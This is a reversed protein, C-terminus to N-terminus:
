DAAANGKVIGLRVVYQVDLEDRQIGYIKDGIFQVPQFRRPMAVVGLFKGESDFVDWERAALDYQLNFGKREEPSLKSPAQIQQVWISGDPGGMFQAFAPYNAAFHVRALLQGVLETTAGADSWAKRLLDKVTQQDAAAVPSEQFTKTIVRELQGGPTYIGIRYNDSVAYLVHDGLLAWSPEPSFINFEPNGSSFTASKGSPVRMLTDGVTGDLRRVVIVDMTDAPGTTGPLALRRFQAVVRGDPTSEWKVPIGDAFSLRFSRVFTGDLLYINARQNGIDSVLLSDGGTLLVAPAGRQLEGPGGGPGGITREYKGDSSFVKLHQAQQDLVVIRGDNAIALPTFGPGARIEGFQYDPNGEATGIRLEEAVTWADGAGWVGAAPNKVIAIGASDSVSGQWGGTSGGGCGVLSVVIGAVLIKTSMNCM